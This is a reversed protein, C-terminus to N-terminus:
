GPSPFLFSTRPKPFQPIMAQFCTKGPYKLFTLLSLWAVACSQPPTPPLVSTFAFTPQAQKHHIKWHGPFSDPMIRLDSPLRKLNTLLFTLLNCVCVHMRVCACEHVCTCIYKFILWSSTIHHLPPLLVQCGLLVKHSNFFRPKFSGKLPFTRIARPPLCATQHKSKVGWHGQVKLDTNFNAVAGCPPKQLPQSDQHSTTRLGARTVRLGDHLILSFFM